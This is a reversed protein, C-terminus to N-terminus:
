CDYCRVVMELLNLLGEPIEDTMTKVTTITNQL